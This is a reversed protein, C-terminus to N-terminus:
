TLRQDIPLPVALVRGVEAVLERPDMADNADALRWHQEAQGLTHAAILDLRDGERVKVEALLAGPKGRPLFRRKKYAIERGDGTILTANEIEAYRSDPDFM